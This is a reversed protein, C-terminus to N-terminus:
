RNDDECSAMAPEQELVPRALAAWVAKGGRGLPLWGWRDSLSAVVHLGRGSEAAYDPEQLVPSRQCPDTVACLLQRAGGFLIVEIPRRGEPGAPEPPRAHRLANTVLESIVVIADRCLEAMGWRRLTGATFDRAEKSSGPEAAVAYRAVLHCDGPNRWPQGAPEPWGPSIPLADRPEDAAPVAMGAEPPAM